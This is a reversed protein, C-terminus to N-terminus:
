PGWEGTEHFRHVQEKAKSVYTKDNKAFLKVRKFLAGKEWRGEVATTKGAVHSTATGIFAKPLIYDVGCYITEVDGTFEVTPTRVTVGKVVMWPLLSIM